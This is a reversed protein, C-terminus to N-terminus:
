FTSWRLLHPVECAAAEWCQRVHMQTQATVVLADTSKLLYQSLQHACEAVLAGTAMRHFIDRHRRVQLQKRIYVELEEQAKQSVESEINEPLKAKPSTGPM